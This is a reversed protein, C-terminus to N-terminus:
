EHTAWPLGVVVISDRATSSLPLRSFGPGPMVTLTFQGQEIQPVAVVGPVM